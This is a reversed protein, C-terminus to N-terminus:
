AGTDPPPSPPWVDDTAAARRGDDAADGRRQGSLILYGKLFLAVAPILAAVINSATEASLAAWGMFFALLLDVGALTTTRRDNPLPENRLLRRVVALNTGTVIVAVGLLLLGLVAGERNGQAVGFVVLGGSCTGTVIGWLGGIACLVILLGRM